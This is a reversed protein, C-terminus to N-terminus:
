RGGSGHAGAEPVGKWKSKVHLEKGGRSVSDRRPSRERLVVFRRLAPEAGAEADGKSIVEVGHLPDRVCCGKREKFCQRYSLALGRKKNVHLHVHTHAHASRHAHPKIKTHRGCYAM